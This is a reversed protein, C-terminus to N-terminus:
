PYIIFELLNDEPDRIYRSIGTASGIDKGGIREV